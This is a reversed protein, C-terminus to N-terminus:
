GATSATMAGGPRSMMGAARKTAMSTDAALKKVENAVVAFGYGAEGARAAEIAANLALLNTQSAITGITAVIQSLEGMTMALADRQRQLEAQYRTADNYAETVDSAIKLVREPRGQDDLVPNYTAQLHVVNGRKSVRRYQGVHFEGASLSRWFTGYAPSAAYDPECFMRHHRGVIEAMPYELASLFVSNAWLITGDLAFEAMLQSQCIAEWAASARSADADTTSVIANREM